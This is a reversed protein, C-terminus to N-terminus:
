LGKTSTINSIDGLNFSNVGNKRSQRKNRRQKQKETLELNMSPEILDNLKTRLTDIRNQGTYILKATTKFGGEGITHNVSQITYISDITTGTNADVFFQQARQLLPMGPSSLSGVAPVVIMDSLNDLATVGQHGIGVDGSDRQETIFITNAIKAVM